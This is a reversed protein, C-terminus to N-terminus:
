NGIVLVWQYAIIIKTFCDSSTIPNYINEACSELETPILPHISQKIKGEKSSWWYQLINQM